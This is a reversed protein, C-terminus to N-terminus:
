SNFAFALILYYFQSSQYNFCIEHIKNKIQTVYKCLEWNQNKRKNYREVNWFVLTM